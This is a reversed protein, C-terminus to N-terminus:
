IHKGDREKEEAPDRGTKYYNGARLAATGRSNEGRDVAALADNWEAGMILAAATLYLWILLVVVTGLTGYIVSYNAFHEVYYSYGASLAMWAALSALAGPVISRGSRRVDQAMAYLLGVAAFVVTGLIVFRLGSWVRAFGRPLGLWSGLWEMAREGVTMLVLTLAITLLLFVTYCLVKVTHVWARRPRPLHYARRVARMLANAARMPFYVSFVLGFWLMADSSTATVYDLYTRLLDLIEPPLLASLSGLISAYDLRLRGILSSVFILFPFLSFLLYYALAASEKGVDHSFYRSLLQAIFQGTRSESARKLWKGM